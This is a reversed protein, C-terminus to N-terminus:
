PPVKQEKCSYDSKIIDSDKAAVFATHEKETRVTGNRITIQKISQRDTATDDALDIVLEDFTLSVTNRLSDYMAMDAVSLVDTSAEITKTGKCSALAMIFLWLYRVNAM